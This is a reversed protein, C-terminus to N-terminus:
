SWWTGQLATEPKNCVFHGSPLTAGIKWITKDKCCRSIDIFMEIYWYVSRKECWETQVNKWNLNVHAKGEKM